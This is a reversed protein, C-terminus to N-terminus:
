FLFQIGQTSIANRINRGGGAGVGWGKVAMIHMCETVSLITVILLLSEEGALEVLAITPVAHSDNHNWISIPLSWGILM